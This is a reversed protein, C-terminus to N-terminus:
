DAPVIRDRRALRRLIRDPERDYCVFAVYLAAEDYLVRVETRETAPQGDHPERQWFDTAAPARQWATEEVRGDLKLSGTLRVARLTPIQRPQAQLAGSLVLCLGVVLMCCSKM